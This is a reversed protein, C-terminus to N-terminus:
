SIMKLEAFCKPKSYYKDKILDCIEESKMVKSLQIYCYDKLDVDLIYNCITSNYQSISLQLYCADKYYSNEIEKCDGTESIDRELIEKNLLVYSMSAFIVVILFVAIAHILLLKKDM